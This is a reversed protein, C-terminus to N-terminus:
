HDDPERTQTVAADLGGHHLTISLRAGPAVHRANTITAGTDFDRVIAYGRGLVREPNLAQLRAWSADVLTHRLAIQREMSGGARRVLDDVRQGYEYLRRQPDRMRLLRTQAELRSRRWELHDGAVRILRHVMQGVGAMLEAMDPVAAAAAASPTPARLDAALDTLTVDTEHGVGSIVPVRCGAVARVVREDNFAWLDRLSGGGRAVIVVDVAGCRELRNFAEVLSAPADVGQVLSSSLVVEVLPYRAKLVNLIDQFAAGSSSTVVGIRKPWPPLPRKRELDFLGEAQLREKLLMFERWLDGVGGREMHDVYLQYSGSREYVSVYGHAEVWDGQTPQWGLRGAQTRWIVCALETEADKLTFYCHGSSARRYNSVEGEIWVDSLTLDSDFLAKVYRTVQTVSYLEM